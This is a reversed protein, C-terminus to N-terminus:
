KREEELEEWVWGEVEERSLNRGKEEIYSYICLFFRSLGSVITQTYVIKLCAVPIPYGSLPSRGQTVYCLGLFVLAVKEREDTAGLKLDEPSYIYRPTIM